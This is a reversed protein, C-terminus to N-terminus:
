KLILHFPVPPIFEEPQTKIKTSFTEGVDAEMMLDYDWASL